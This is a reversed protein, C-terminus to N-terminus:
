GLDFTLGRRAGKMLNGATEGSNLSLFLKRLISIQRPNLSHTPTQLSKCFGLFPWRRKGGLNSRSARSALLHFRHTALTYCVEFQRPLILGWPELPLEMRFFTEQKKTSTKVELKFCCFLYAFLLTCAFQPTKPFPSAKPKLM